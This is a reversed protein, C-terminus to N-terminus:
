PVLKGSAALFLLAPLGFFPPIPANKLGFSLRKFEYHHRPTSFATYEMSKPDLGVQYYGRVLDLTTFFKMGHLGYILSNMNPIPFGDSKTVRNLQRYDICMRLTGDPKRIPVIPASWPSKSYDIINLRRLEECQAEIERAVPEPFNRPKQRIPTNDYLEIKHRTVSAHGVDDDGQSFALGNIRLMDGVADRCSTELHDLDVHNLLDSSTEELLCIDVDSHRRVDLEVVSSLSALVKGCKLKEHSFSGPLKKILLVFPDSSAALVGAEGVLHSPYLNGDFYLELPEDPQVSVPLVAEVLQLDGCTVVTDQAVEVDVQRLITHVVSDELYLEWSGWSHSGGFRSYSLNIQVNYTSFFNCGLIVPHRMASDPMVIFDADFVIAGVKIPMSVTGLPFVTNGALGTVSQACPKVVSNVSKVLSSNILCVSAGTDLLARASQGGVVAPFVLLSESTGLSIDMPDQAECQPGNLLTPPLGVNSSSIVDTPVYPAANPQLESTYNGM